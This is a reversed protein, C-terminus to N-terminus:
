KYDESILSEIFLSTSGAKEEKWYLEVKVKKLCDGLIYDEMHMKYEYRATGFITVFGHVDINVTELPSVKFIKVKGAETSTVNVGGIKVDSNPDDGNTLLYYARAGVINSSDSEKVLEKIMKRAYTIKRDGINMATSRFRGKEIAKLGYVFVGCLMVLLIGSLSIAILIEILSFGRRRYFKIYIRRRKINYNCRNM